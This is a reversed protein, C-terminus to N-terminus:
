DGVQKLEGLLDVLNVARGLFGGSEGVAGFFKASREYGLEFRERSPTVIQRPRSLRGTCNLEALLPLLQIRQGYLELLDSGSGKGEAFLPDKEAV